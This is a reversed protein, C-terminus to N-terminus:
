GEVLRRAFLLRLDGGSFRRLAFTLAGSSSADLWQVDDIAVLVRESWALSRLVDRVAVALARADVREGPEDERLLALGLARRRPPALAPLVDDPVDEFLDGLAAYALGQEAEAPRSSLVRSGGDRAHELAALWLTSKGIGAEGELVLAAASGDADDGIFARVAALEEGRGVIEISM